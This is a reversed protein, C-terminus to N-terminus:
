LNFILFIAHSYNITITVYLGFLIAISLHFDQLFGTHRCPPTSHWIIILLVGYLGKKNVVVRRPNCKIMGCFICVDFQEYFKDNLGKQM